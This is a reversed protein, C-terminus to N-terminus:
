PHISRSLPFFTQTPRPFHLLPLILTRQLFNYIPILAPESPPLHLQPHNLIIPLFRPHITPMIILTTPQSVRDEPSPHNLHNRFGSPTITPPTPLHSPPPHPQSQPARDSPISPHYASSSEILQRFPKCFYLAQLVSNAYCTNGFNEMGYYKEGSGDWWRENPDSDSSSRHHSSSQTSNSQHGGAAPSSNVGIWRLLSM